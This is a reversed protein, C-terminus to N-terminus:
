SGHEYCRREHSTARRASVIRIKAGRDTHVVVMLNKMASQGILVWRHESRSHLPDPVTLSYSDEFVTVAEEFAVHHKKRNAAAKLEDWEFEIM